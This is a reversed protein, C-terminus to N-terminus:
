KQDKTKYYQQLTKIMTEILHNTVPNKSQQPLYVAKDIPKAFFQNIFSNLMDRKVVFATMGNKDAGTYSKTDLGYAEANIAAPNYLLDNRNTALANGAAEAGGKSHGVFTMEKDGVDKSVQNATDIYM